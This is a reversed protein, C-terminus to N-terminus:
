PGNEGQCRFSWPVRGRTNLCAEPIVLEQLVCGGLITQEVVRPVDSLQVRGYWIGQPYIVLAPGYECQDLCGALNIRVRRPAKRRALEEKLASLLARTGQPDCCGRPHDGQRCNCCVFVHCDFAAM